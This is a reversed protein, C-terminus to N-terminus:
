LEELRETWERDRNPSYTEGEREARRSLLESQEAIRDCARAHMERLRKLLEGFSWYATGM